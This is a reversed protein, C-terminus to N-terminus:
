VAQTLEREKKPVGGSVLDLGKPLMPRRLVFWRFWGGLIEKM